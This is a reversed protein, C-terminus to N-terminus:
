SNGCLVKQTMAMIQDIENKGVGFTAEANTEIQNWRLNKAIDLCITEGNAVATEPKAALKPDIARLQEVFANQATASAPSIPVEPVEPKKDGSASCGALAVLAAAGVLLHRGKM